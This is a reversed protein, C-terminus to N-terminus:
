QVFREWQDVQSLSSIARGDTATPDVVLRRLSASGTLPRKVSGTVVLDAAVGHDPLSAVAEVAPVARSLADFAEAGWLAIEATNSATADLQSWMMLRASTHGSGIPNAAGILSAVVSVALEFSEPTHSIERDDFLVHPTVTSAPDFTRILMGRGRASATWHVLRLEDGFVYSRLGAPEMDTAVNTASQGALVQPLRDEGAAVRATVPMATHMEPWITLRSRGGTGLRRRALALPDYRHVSFPGVTLEGRDGVALPFSGSRTGAKGPRSWIRVRRGDSIPARVVAPRFGNLQLTVAVGVTSRALAPSPQVSTALKPRRSPIWVWILAVGVLALLAAGAAVLEPLSLVWAGVCFATGLGLTAAGRQTLV